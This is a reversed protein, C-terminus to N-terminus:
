SSNRRSSRPSCRPSCRPSSKRPWIGTLAWLSKSAEIYLKKSHSWLPSLLADLMEILKKREAENFVSLFIMISIQGTQGDLVNDLFLQAANLAELWTIPEQVQELLQKAEDPTAVTMWRVTEADRDLFPGPEEALDAM